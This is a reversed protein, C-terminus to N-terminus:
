GRDPPTKWMFFLSMVMIMVEMAIGMARIVVDMAMDVAWVVVDMRRRLM